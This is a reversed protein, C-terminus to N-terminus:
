NLNIIVFHYLRMLNKILFYIFSKAIEYQVIYSGKHFKNCFNNNNQYKM